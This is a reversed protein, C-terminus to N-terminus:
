HNSPQQPFIHESEWAQFNDDSGITQVSGDAMVYVRTPQNEPGPWAQRERLVAISGYPVKLELPKGQFLIEFDNTGSFPLHEKQLYSAVQDLNTPTQGSNDSAYLHFAMGLSMADKGKGASMQHLAEFYEPSRPAPNSGGPSSRAQHSEQLRLALQNTLKRLETTEVKIRKSDLGAESNNTKDAVLQTLRQQETSLETLQRTQQREQQSRQELADRNHSIVILSAALGAALIGCFLAIKLKTM